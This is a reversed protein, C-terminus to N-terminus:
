VNEWGFISRHHRTQTIQLVGVTKMEKNEFKAYHNNVMTEAPFCKEFVLRDSKLMTPVRSM